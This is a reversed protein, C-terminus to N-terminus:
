AQSARITTWAQWTIRVILATICLGILPDAVDIGAGVAIASAVVGLSVYGDVRAHHGDALLAPSDLSRGGRLRIRAAVENGVFGVLGAVALVVLHDLPEPNFLRNLAEAGAICASAFIVAVVVFGANREWRRNAAFFAIGLPIATLADGANHILDALLAVSGSSLYVIAQVTATVGLM